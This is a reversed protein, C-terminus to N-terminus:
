LMGNFFALVEILLLIFEYSHVVHMFNINICTSASRYLEKLKKLKKRIGIKSLCQLYWHFYVFVCVMFNGLSDYIHIEGNTMGFLIMKGDPAWQLSLFYKPTKNGSLSIQIAGRRSYPSSIGFM